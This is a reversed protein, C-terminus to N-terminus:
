HYKPSNLPGIKESARENVPGRENLKARADRAERGGGNKSTSPRQKGTFNLSMKVLVELVHPGRTGRRGERGEVVRRAM